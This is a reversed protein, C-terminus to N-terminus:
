IAVTEKLTSTLYYKATKCVGLGFIYLLSDGTDCISNVRLWKRLNVRERLWGREGNHESDSVREREVEARVNMKKGIRLM